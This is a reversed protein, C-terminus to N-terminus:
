RQIPNDSFSDAETSPLEGLTVEVEEGTLGHTMQVPGQKAADILAQMQDPAYATAPVQLRRMLTRTLDEASATHPCLHANSASAFRGCGSCRRLGHADVGVGRITRTLQQQARIQQALAPLPKRERIAQITRYVAAYGQRADPKPLGTPSHTPPKVGRGRM